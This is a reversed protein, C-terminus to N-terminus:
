PQLFPNKPEQARRKAQMLRVVFVMANISIALTFAVVATLLPMSKSILVFAFAAVLISDIFIFPVLLPRMDVKRPQNREQPNGPDGTPYSSM